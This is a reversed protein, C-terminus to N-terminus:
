DEKEMEFDYKIIYGPDINKSNGCNEVVSGRDYYYGEKEPKLFFEYEADPEYEIYFKGDSNSFVEIGTATPYQTNGIARKLVSIKANEIWYFTLDPFRYRIDGEIKVKGLKVMEFNREEIPKGSHIQPYSTNLLPYIYEDHTIKMYYVFDANDIYIEYYGKDNTYFIIDTEERSCTHCEAKLVTLNVNEIGTGLTDTIYGYQEYYDNAILKLFMKKCSQLSFMVVLIMIIIAPKKM